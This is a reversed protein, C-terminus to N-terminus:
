NHYFFNSVQYNHSDTKQYTKINNFIALKCDPKRCVGAGPSLIRGPPGKGKNQTLFINLGIRSFTKTTINLQQKM